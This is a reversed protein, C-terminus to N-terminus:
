KINKKRKRQACTKMNHTYMYISIYIFVIDMNMQQIFTIQHRVQIHQQKNTQQQKKLKKEREKYVIDMQSKGYTTM